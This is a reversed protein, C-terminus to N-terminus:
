LEIMLKKLIYDTRSEISASPVEDIKYRYKKYGGVLFRYIHKAEEFTEYRENDQEYIDEWPPLLFVSDYRHLNCTEDFYVPYDAQKYDLYATVDPLGRDFFLHPDDIKLSSRFQNLRGELLKESFLLPDKLFLQEIGQRQAEITISRSIEHMCNFGLKHLHEILVTKGSGPGGTIVIKKPM